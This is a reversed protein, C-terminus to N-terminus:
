FLCRKKDKNYKGDFPSKFPIYLRILPRRFLCYEGYLLKLFIIEISCRYLAVDVKKKREEGSSM